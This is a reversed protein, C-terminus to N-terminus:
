GWAWVAIGMGFLNRFHEDTPARSRPPPGSFSRLDPQITCAVNLIGYTGDLNALSCDCPSTLEFWFEQHRGTSYEIDGDFDVAVVQCFISLSENYLM